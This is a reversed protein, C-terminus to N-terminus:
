SNVLVATFHYHSDNGVEVQKPPILTDAEAALRVPWGSEELNNSVSDAM